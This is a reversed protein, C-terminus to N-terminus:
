KKSAREVTTKIHREHHVGGRVESLHDADLQRAGLARAFFPVDATLSDTTMSQDLVDKKM